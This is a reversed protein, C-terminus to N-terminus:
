HFPRVGLLPSEYSPWCFEDGSTAPGDTERSRAQCLANVLPIGLDVTTRVSALSRPPVFDAETIRVVSDAGDIPGITAQLASIQKRLDANKARLSEVESAAQTPAAVTAFSPLAVEMIKDALTALEEIPNKESEAALVMPVYSPLRQM